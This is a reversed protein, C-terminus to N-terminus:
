LFQPCSRAACAPLRSCVRVYNARLGRPCSHVACPNHIVRRRSIKCISPIAAALMHGVCGQSIRGTRPDPVTPLPQISRQRCSSQSGSASVHSIPSPPSPPNGCHGANVADAAYGFATSVYSNEQDIDGNATQAAQSAASGAGSWTQRPPLAHCYDLQRRMGRLPRPDRISTGPRDACTVVQGASVDRWATRRM